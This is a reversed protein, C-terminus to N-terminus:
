PTASSKILEYRAASIPKEDGRLVVENAVIHELGVRSYGAQLVQAALSDSEVRGARGMAIRLANSVTPIRL